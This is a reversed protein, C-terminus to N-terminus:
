LPLFITVCTGEGPISDWSITGKLIDVRQKMNSLGMGNSIESTDFGHGNDKVIILTGKEKKTLSISVRTPNGHKISNQIAEQVIRFLIIQEESNLEIQIDNTLEACLAESTNIRNIEAQLNDAFSFRQLWDKDLSKSLSRLEGIAQCITANATLLTAPPKEMARETLGLLITSSSLLQGVNDHLEKGLQRFTQEQVEIRSQLLQKEFEQRLNNNELILRSKRKNFYLVYMIVFIAVMTFIVSIIVIAQIVTNAKEQM